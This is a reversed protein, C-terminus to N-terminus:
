ALLLAQINLSIPPYCLAMPKAFPLCNLMAVPLYHAPFQRGAGSQM